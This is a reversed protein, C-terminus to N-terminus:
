HGPVELKAIEIKLVELAARVDGYEALHQQAQAAVAKMKALDGIVIAQQIAGGALPITDTTPAVEPCGADIWGALENIQEDTFFPPGNAPMQGYAGNTPDFCTGPTGQLAQIINSAKSDGKVLIPMPKGTNCDTVGPVDGNVFQEYSLSSWFAGHPANAASENNQTLVTTIFQQVDAYSNLAM